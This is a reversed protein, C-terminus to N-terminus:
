RDIYSLTDPDNLGQVEVATDELAGRMFSLAEESLESTESRVALSVAYTLAEITRQQRLAHKTVDFHGVIDLGSQTVRETADMYREASKRNTFYRDHTTDDDGTVHYIARKRM